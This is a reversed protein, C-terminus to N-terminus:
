KSGGKDFTGSCQRKCPPEDAHGDLPTETNPHVTMKEVHVTATYARKKVVKQGSLKLGNCENEIVSLMDEQM